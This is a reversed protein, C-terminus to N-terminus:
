EAPNEPEAAQIDGMTRIAAESLGYKADPLTQIDLEEVSREGGEPRFYENLLEATGEADFYVLDTSIGNPLPM